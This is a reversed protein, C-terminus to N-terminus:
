WKIIEKQKNQKNHIIKIGLRIYNGQILIYAKNNIIKIMSKM